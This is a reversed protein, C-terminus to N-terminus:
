SATTTWVHRRVAPALLAAVQVALLPVIPLLYPVAAPSGSGLFGILAGTLTIGIGYLLFCWALRAVWGARRFKYWTLLVMLWELGFLRLQGDSDRHTAIAGYLRTYALLAVSLAAVLTLLLRANRDCIRSM